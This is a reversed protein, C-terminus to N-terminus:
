FLKKNIINKFLIQIRIQAFLSKQDLTLNRGAINVFNQNKVTSEIKSFFFLNEIVTIKESVQLNLRDDTPVTSYKREPIVCANLKKDNKYEKNKNNETIPSLACTSSKKRVLERGFVQLRESEAERQHIKETIENKQM